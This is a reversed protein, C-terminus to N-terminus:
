SPILNEVVKQGLYSFIAGEKSYDISDPRKLTGIAQGILVEWPKNTGLISGVLLMRIEKLNCNKRDYDQDKFDQMSSYKPHTLNIRLWEDIQQKVMNWNLSISSLVEDTLMLNEVARCSLRMRIIPPLDVISEPQDDRDRLSYAKATDYIANIIKRADEEYANMEQVGGCEIPYIKLVGSSTKVAQQWVRQDDEGELLLIPAENFVNSLPHAGFVPLIKKYTDNISSFELTTDGSKMFAISSDSYDSLEGLIATSHTAIIVRFKNERLLDKLFSILRSQLDPHLHVDPEDLFLINESGAIAEKSFILCEIGLSILESEGSSISRPQLETETGKKYIKFAVEQRRIEINDLLTNLKDIYVDFKYNADSRKSTDSEIERLIIHELRKYQAVSQERFQNFQNVRRSDRMWTPSTNINHEIGAEHILAGGREPTIYKLKGWPPNDPQIDSEIRKLLTSKGCGNKGLIVNINTLNKLSYGGIDDINM